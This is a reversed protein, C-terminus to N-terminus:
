RDVAQAKMWSSWTEEYKRLLKLLMQLVTGYPVFRHGCSFCSSIQYESSHFIHISPCFPIDMHWSHCGMYPYCLCSEQLCSPDHFIARFTTLNLRSFVTLHGLVSLFSVLLLFHLTISSNQRVNESM